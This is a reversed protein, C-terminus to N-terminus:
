STDTDLVLGSIASSVELQVIPKANFAVGLGAKAMMPLDNAGDGVALVQSLPIRETKAIEQLLLSKQEANIITGYLEGTL